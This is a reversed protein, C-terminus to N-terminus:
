VENTPKPIGEVISTNMEQLQAHLVIEGLTQMVKSTSQSQTPNIKNKSLSQAINTTPIPGPM